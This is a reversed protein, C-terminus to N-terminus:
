VWTALRVVDAPLFPESDLLDIISKVDGPDPIRSGPDSVEVSPYPARSTPDTPGSDGDSGPDRIGSGSEIVIGTLVRNGLPVLVRSGIPPDPLGDPVAYTLADLTPVPVAVQIRRM